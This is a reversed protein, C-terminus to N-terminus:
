MRGSIWDRMKGSFMLAILMAIVLLFWYSLWGMAICFGMVPLGVIVMAFIANDKGALLIAPFMFLGLFIASTMLQAPFLSIGLKDALQQPFDSLEVEGEGEPAYVSPVFVLFAFLTLAIFLFRKDVNM